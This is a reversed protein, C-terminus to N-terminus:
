ANEKIWAQIAAKPQAGVKTAVVEGNKFIMLTPISRIGYKGPTAPSEDVNIKVIAIGEAESAIEELVPGLMKCPGCWTAWFDVLVPQASKLVEAEFDADTVAKTSTGM